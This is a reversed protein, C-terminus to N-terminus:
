QHHSPPQKSHKYLAMIQLGDMSDTKFDWVSVVQKVKQKINNSWDMNWIQTVKQLIYYAWIFLRAQPTALSKGSILSAVYYGNFTLNGCSVVTFLNENQEIIAVRRWM